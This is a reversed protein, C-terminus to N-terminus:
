SEKQKQSAAEIAGSSILKKYLNRGREPNEYYIKVAYDDYDTLARIMDYDKRVESSHLRVTDGVHNIYYFADKPYVANRTPDIVFVDKSDSIEVWSHLYKAKPSLQYIRGTVFHTEFNKNNAYCLTTVVGYPHCKGGRSPEEIDKLTALIRPEYKSFKVVRFNLDESSIYLANGKIEVDIGCEKLSEIMNSIAINDVERYTFFKILNYLTNTVPDFSYEDKLRMAAGERGQSYLTACKKLATDVKDQKKNESSIYKRKAWNHLCSKKFKIYPIKIFSNM